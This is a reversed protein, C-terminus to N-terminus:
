KPLAYIFNATVAAPTTKGDTLNLTVKTDTGDATKMIHLTSSTVTSGACTPSTGSACVNEVFYLLAGDNSLTAATAIGGGTFTLPPLISPTPGSQYVAIKGPQNGLIYVKPYTTLPTGILSVGTTDPNNIDGSIIISTPTTASTGLPTTTPTVTESPKFPGLTNSSAPACNSVLNSIKFQYVNTGDVGFVYSGDTSSKLFTPRNAVGIATDPDSISDTANKCTAYPTLANANSSGGALFGYTGPAAFVADIMTSAMNVTRLATYQSYIYLTSGALIYAKTSDPSFAARTVNAIIYTQASGNTSDFVIVRNNPTDSFMIKSNNPSIALVNGKLGTLTLLVTNTSSQLTLEGQDTGMYVFQGDTTGVYSNIKPQISNITPITIATGVTGTSTDIPLIQVANPGTVYLTTTSSTGTFTSTVVNSYVPQNPGPNCVPPLCAAVISANGAANVLVSGVASGSVNSVSTSIGNSSFFSLPVNTITTGLTDKVVATVSHAGSATSSYATATTVTSDTLAITQPPCVTVNVPLSVNNGTSATLTTTGPQVATVTPVQTTTDLAVTAVGTNQSIYNVPGTTVFATIDTGFTDRITPTLTLTDAQSLCTNNTNTSKPVATLAISSIKNHIRVTTTGTVGTVTTPTATITTPKNGNTDFNYITCKSITTSAGTPDCTVSSGPTAGPLFNPLAPKCVIFNADWTGACVNGNKDVTVGTTASSNDSSWTFALNSLTNAKSDQGIATIQVVDGPNLSLTTPSVLVVSLKGTETSPGNQITNGKSGCSTILASLVLPVVVVAVTRLHQLTLFRM